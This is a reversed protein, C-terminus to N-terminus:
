ETFIKNTAKGVAEASFGRRRLYDYVKRRMQPEDLKRSSRLLRDRRWLAASFALEHERDRTFFESLVMDITPKSIGKQKLLQRLVPEGIPRRRLKDRCFMRAFESDDLLNLETLKEVVTAIIKEPFGKKKLYQDIEKESRPRLALFRMAKQKAGEEAEKAALAEVEAANVVAGEYLSFKLLTADSVGLAFEDDIYVSKRSPNNKQKEIKTIRM